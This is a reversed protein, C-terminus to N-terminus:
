CRLRSPPGDSGRRDETSQPGGQDDVWALPQYFREIM